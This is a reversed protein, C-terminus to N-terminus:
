PNITIRTLVNGGSDLATLSRITAGAPRQLAVFRAATTFPAAVTAREVTAGDRIEMRVTAVNPRSVGIVFSGDGAAASYRLTEDGNFDQESSENCVGGGSQFPGRLVACVVGTRPGTEAVLQWRGAPTSGSDVVAEAPGGRATTPPTTPRPAATSTTVRPAVTTTVVQTTTPPPVTTTTPEVTTSPATPVPGVSQPDGGACASLALLGAVAITSARRINTRRM